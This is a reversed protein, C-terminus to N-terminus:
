RGLQLAPGNEEQMVTTALESIIRASSRNNAHTWWAPDTISKMRQLIKGSTPHSHDDYPPQHFEPGTGALEVVIRDIVRIRAHESYQHHRQKVDFPPLGMQRARRISDQTIHDNYCQFCLKTLQERVYQASQGRHPETRCHGCSHTITLQSVTAHAKPQQM